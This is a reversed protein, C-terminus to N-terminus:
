IMALCLMANLNKPDLKLAARGKEIAEDVRDQAMLMIAWNFLIEPHVGDCMAAREIGLLGENTNTQVFSVALNACAQPHRPNCRLAKNYKSQAVDIRGALHHDFGINNWEDAPDTGPAQLLTYPLIHM